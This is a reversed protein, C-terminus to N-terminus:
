GGPNTLDFGCDDFLDFYVSPDVNEANGLEALDISDIVCNAQEETMGILTFVSVLQQRATEEDTGSIDGLDEIDGLDLTDLTDGLDGLDVTDGTDVINDDFGCERALYADLREGAATAEPNEVVSEDLATFDFDVDRLEEVLRKTEDVLLEVDDKIEDPASDAAEEALDIMEEFANEIADPDNSVVDDIASNSELDRALDCWESGGSNGGSDDDEDGSDADGNSGDTTVAADGTADDDDGGCAGGALALAAVM